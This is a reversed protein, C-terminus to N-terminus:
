SRSLILGLLRLLGGIVCLNPWSCWFRSTADADDRFDERNLIKIGKVTKAAVDCYVAWISISPSDTIDFIWQLKSFVAVDHPVIGNENGCFVLLLIMIQLRPLRRGPAFRPTDEENNGGNVLSELGWRYMYSRNVFYLLWSASRTQQRRRYICISWAYGIDVQQM